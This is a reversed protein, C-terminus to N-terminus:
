PRVAGPGLADAATMLVGGGEIDDASLRRVDPVVISGGNVRIVGDDRLQRLLRSLHEPTVAILSALEWRKLPLSLRVGGGNGGPSAAGTFRRLFRELRQRSTATGLDAMQHFQSLVERSHMRHVHWSLAQHKALLDLFAQRTLRRLRCPTVAVASAPHARLVLVLAAGLFWGAGRLGLIQERGDPGTRVLKALGEEVYFVDGPDGGQQMLVTGVPYSLASPLLPLWADGGAPGPWRVGDHVHHDM